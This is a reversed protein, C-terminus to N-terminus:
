VSSRAAPPAIEVGTMAALDSQGVKRHIALLQVSGTSTTKIHEKHVVHARVKLVTTAGGPPTTRSEPNVATATGVQQAPATATVLVAGVFALLAITHQVKM